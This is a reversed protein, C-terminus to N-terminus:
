KGAVLFTLDACVESVAVADVDGLRLGQEYRIPGDADGAYFKCGNLAIRNDPRRYSVVIGDHFIVAHVRARESSMASELRARQATGFDRLQKKLTM